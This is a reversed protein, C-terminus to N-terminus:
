RYIGTKLIIKKISIQHALFDYLNEMIHFNVDLHSLYKYVSVRLITKLLHTIYVNNYLKTLYRYIRYMLSTIM